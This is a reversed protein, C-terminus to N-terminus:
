SKSVEDMIGILQREVEGALDDLGAEPLMEAIMSPKVLTMVTRDGEPRVVIKCPMFMAVNIDNGLAKYAFGANCLEYIKLPEIEFGKGALTERVDHIALIRFGKEPAISELSATVNEMTKDSTISYGLEKM